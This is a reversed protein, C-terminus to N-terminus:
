PNPRVELFREENKIKEHWVESESWFDSLTRIDDSDEDAAEKRVIKNDDDLYLDEMNNNLWKAIEEKSKGDLEPWETPVLTLNGHHEYTVFSEILSVTLTQIEKSPDQKPQNSM